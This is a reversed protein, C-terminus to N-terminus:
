TIKYYIIYKIIDFLKEILLDPTWIEEGAGSKFPQLDRSGKNQPKWCGSNVVNVLIKTLNNEQMRVVKEQINGELRNANYGCLGLLGYFSAGSSSFSLIKSARM